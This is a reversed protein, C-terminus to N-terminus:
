IVDTLNLYYVNGNITIPYKFTAETNGVTAASPNSIASIAVNPALSVNGAFNAHASSLVINASIYNVGSINGSIGPTQIGFSDITTNAINGTLAKIDGPMEVNSTASDFTFGSTGGFDGANNYQIQTNAGGPTGTGPTTTGANWVLNGSGDTQLFYGNTGGDVKLNSVSGLSLNGAVYNATPVGGLGGSTKYQLSGLTGEGGPSSATYISLDIPEVAVTQTISTQTVNLQIPEVVITANIESM